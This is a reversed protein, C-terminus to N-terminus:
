FIFLEVKPLAVNYGIRDFDHNEVVEIHGCDRYNLIPIVGGFSSNIRTEKKIVQNAMFSKLITM